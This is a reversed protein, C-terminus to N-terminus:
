DVPTRGPKFDGTSLVEKGDRFTKMPWESIQSLTEQLQRM